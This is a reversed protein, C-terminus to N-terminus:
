YKKGLWRVYEELGKELSYEPSFGLRKAKSADACLRAVDGARPEKYIPETKINHIEIMKQAIENITFDKEFGINIIEGTRMKEGCLVIGRATDKVYTYDRSQNGDGFIVPPKGRSLNQAFQTIVCAYSDERHRPGYTNFPRIISVPLNFTRLYSLVYFEGALKSAAYPTKPNLPHNEDMKQTQADGYVESSSVYIFQKGHKRAAELLMLTGTSNVEDAKLPNELSVPLAVVALHYIKDCKQVAKELVSNDLISGKIFEAEKPVNEKLGVSLDDLVIVKNGSKILEEAVFSGIFGAGGTVLVSTM